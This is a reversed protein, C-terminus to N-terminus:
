EDGREMLNRLGPLLTALITQSRVRAEATGHMGDHYDQWRGEAKFRRLPLHAQVIVSPGQFTLSDAIEQGLFRRVEGPGVVENGVDDITVHQYAYRFGTLEVRLPDGKKLLPRYHGPLIAIVFLRDTDGTIALLSEGPNVFQNLHIRLDQVIGARPAFLTRQKLRAEAAEIQARLTALQQQASSDNPNKLRNLQQSNFDNRLRELEIREQLDDFYLLPQKAEVREGSRVAIRRIAGSASATVQTRGDDRIVGVGPAYEDVRAIVIYLLAASFLGILLWYIWSTWQTSIHLLDNHTRNGRSHFELAEDRFITPESKM